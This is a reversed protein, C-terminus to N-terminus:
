GSTHEFTGNLDLPASERVIGFLSENIAAALTSELALTAATGPRLPSEVINVLLTNHTFGGIGISCDFSGAFAHSSFTNQVGGSRPSHDFSTIKGSELISNGSRWNGNAQIRAVPTKVLRTYEAIATRAVEVVSYQQNAILVTSCPDDLVRPSGRPSFGTIDTESGSVGATDSLVGDGCVNGSRRVFM